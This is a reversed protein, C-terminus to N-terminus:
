KIAFKMSAVKEVLPLVRSSHMLKSEKLLMPVGPVLELTADLLPSPIGGAVDLRLAEVYDFLREGLDAAESPSGGSFHLPALSSGELKLSAESSTLSSEQACLSASPTPGYSVVMESGVELLGLMSGAVSDSGLGAKTLTESSSIDVSARCPGVLASHGCGDEKAPLSSRLSLKCSQGVPKIVLKLHIIPKKSVKRPRFGNPKFGLGALRGLYGRVQIMVSRSFGLLKKLWFFVCSGKSEKMKKAAVSSPVAPSGSVRVDCEYCNVALRVEEGGEELVSPLLDLPTVFVPKLGVSKENDRDVSHLVTV